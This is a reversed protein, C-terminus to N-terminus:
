TALLISRHKKVDYAFSNPAESVPAYILVRLRLKMGKEEKEHANALGAVKTLQTNRMKM